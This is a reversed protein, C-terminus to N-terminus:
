SIPPFYHSLHILTRKPTTLHHKIFNLDMTSFTYIQYKFYFDVEYATIRNKPVHQYRSWCFIIDWNFMCFDRNNQFLPWMIIKGYKTRKCQDHFFFKKPGVKYNFHNLSMSISWFNKPRYLLTLWITLMIIYHPKRWPNANNRWFEQSKM